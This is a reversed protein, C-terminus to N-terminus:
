SKLSFLVAKKGGFERDLRGTLIMFDKEGIKIKKGDSLETYGKLDSFEIYNNVPVAFEALSLGEESKIEYDRYIRVM